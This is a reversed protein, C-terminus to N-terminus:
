TKTRGRKRIGSMKKRTLTQLIKTPYAMVTNNAKKRGQNLPNTTSTLHFRRVKRRNTRIKEDKKHIARIDKIKNDRM